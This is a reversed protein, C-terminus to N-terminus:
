STTSWSVRAPMPWDVQTPMPPSGILPVLKMSTGRPTRSRDSSSPWRSSPRSRRCPRAPPRAVEHVIAHLLRDDSEDRALRRRRSAAHSVGARDDGPEAPVAASFSSANSFAPMPTARRGFSKTSSSRLRSHPQRLQESRIAHTIGSSCRASGSPSRSREDLPERCRAHDVVRFGQARADGLSAALIEHHVAVAREDRVIARLGRALEADRNAHRGSGIARPTSSAVRAFLRRADITTSRAGGRM